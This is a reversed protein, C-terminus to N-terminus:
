YGIFMGFDAHFCVFNVEGRVCFLIGAFHGYDQWGQNESRLVMDSCQM